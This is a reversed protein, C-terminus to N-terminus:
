SWPDDFSNHHDWGSTHEFPDSQFSDHHFTDNLDTGYPNGMVDVGGIDGMMPLGTAPNISAGSAFHQDHTVQDLSDQFTSNRSLRAFDDNDFLGSHNGQSFSQRNGTSGLLGKLVSLLIFISIFVLM